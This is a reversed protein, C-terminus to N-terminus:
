CIFQASFGVHKWTGHARFCLLGSNLFLARSDGTCALVCEKACHWEWKCFLTTESFTRLLAGSSIHVASISTCGSVLEALVIQMYYDALCFGGM